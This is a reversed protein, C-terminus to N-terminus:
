SWLLRLLSLLKAATAGSFVSFAAIAEMSSEVPKILDSGAPILDAVTRRGDALDLLQKEIPNLCFLERAFPDKVVWYGAAESAGDVWRFELDGRLRWLDVRPMGSADGASVM